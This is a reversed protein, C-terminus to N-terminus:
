LTPAVSVILRCFQTRSLLLLRLQGFVVLAGRTVVLRGVVVVFFDELAVVLFAAEDEPDSLTIKFPKSTCTPFSPVLSLTVAFTFFSEEIIHRFEASEPTHRQDSPKSHFM